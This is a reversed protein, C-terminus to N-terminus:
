YKNIWLSDEGYKKIIISDIYSINNINSGFTRMYCKIQIAENLIGKVEHYDVQPKYTITYQGDIMSSADAHSIATLQGDKKIVEEVYSSSTTNKDKNFRLPEAGFIPENEVIDEGIPLLPIEVNGDMISYEIICNQDRVDSVELTLYDISALRGLNIPESLFYGATQVKVNKFNIKDLGFIYSYLRLTTIKVDAASRLNEKITKGTIKNITTRSIIYEANIKNMNIKDMNTTKAVEFEKIDNWTHNTVKSEDIEYIVTDYNTCVMDFKIYICIRTVNNKSIDYDSAYEEIGNILGFRINNISCNSTIFDLVNIKVPEQFYVIMTQTLGDQQAKEELFIAKYSKTYLVNDLTDNFPISDSKTYVSSYNVDLEYEYGLTLKKDKLILPSLKDQSKVRDDIVSDNQKLPVNYSLYSLNKSMDVTTELEKIISDMEENFTKIKNDLFVRAYQISDELYRTKEYLTNLSEEISKFTENLKSSELYEGQYKIEPETLSTIKNIAYDFDISDKIM